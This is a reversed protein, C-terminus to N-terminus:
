SKRLLVNLIHFAKFVTSEHKILLIEFAKLLDYMQVIIMQRVKQVKVVQLETQKNNLEEKLRQIEKEIDVDHERRNHTDYEPHRRHLHAQLYDLTLFSHSCVPCQPSLYLDLTFIISYIFVRHHPPHQTMLMKQQSEILKKRRKSEKKVTNLENKLNQIERRSEDQTQSFKGKFLEFVLFHHYRVLAGNSKLQEYDVLQSTIQDQCLQIFELTRQLYSFSSFNM